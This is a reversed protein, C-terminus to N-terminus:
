RVRPIDPAASGVCKAVVERVELARDWVRGSSYVVVCRVPPVRNAAYGGLSPPQRESRPVTGGRRGADTLAHCSRHAGPMRDASLRDRWGADAAALRRRGRSAELIQRRPQRASRRDRRRRSGGIRPAPPACCTASTIPTSSSTSLPSPPITRSACTPSQFPLYRYPAGPSQARAPNWHVDPPPAGVRLHRLAKTNTPVALTVSPNVRRERRFSARTGNMLAAPIAEFWRTPRVSPTHSSVGVAPNALDRNSACMSDAIHRSLQSRKRLTIQDERNQCQYRSDLGAKFPLRM